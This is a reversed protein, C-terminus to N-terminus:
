FVETNRRNELMVLLFIASNCMELHKYTGLQVVDVTVAKPQVAAGLGLVHVLVALILSM